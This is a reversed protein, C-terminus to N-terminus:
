WSKLCNELVLRTHKQCLRPSTLEDSAYQESHPTEYNGSVTLSTLLSPVEEELTTTQHLLKRHQHLAKLPMLCLETLHYEVFRFASEVFFFFFCLYINHM